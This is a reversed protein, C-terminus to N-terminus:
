SMPIGCAPGWCFVVHLTMGSRGKSLPGVRRMRSTVSDTVVLAVCLSQRAELHRHNGEETGFTLFLSSCFGAFWGSFRGDSGVLPTPSHLGREYQFGGLTVRLTHPLLYTSKTALFVTHSLSGPSREQFGRSNHACFVSLLPCFHNATWGDAQPSGRTSSTSAAARSAKANVMGGSNGSTRLFRKVFAM